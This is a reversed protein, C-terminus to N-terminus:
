LTFGLPPQMTRKSTASPACLMTDWRQWGMCFLLPSSRPHKLRWSQLKVGPSDQRAKANLGSQIYIEQTGIHGLAM